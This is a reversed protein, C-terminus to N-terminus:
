DHKKALPSRLILRLAVLGIVGAIALGALRLIESEFFYLPLWTMGLLLLALALIIAPNGRGVIQFGCIRLGFIGGKVEDGGLIRNDGDAWSVPESASHM